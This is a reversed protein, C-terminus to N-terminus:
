LVRHAPHRLLHGQLESREADPDEADGRSEHRRFSVEGGQVRCGIVGHGRHALAEDAPESCRVVDGPDDQETRAVRRASAPRVM